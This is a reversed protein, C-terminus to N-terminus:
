KGGDSVEKKVKINEKIREAVKDRKVLINAVKGSVSKVDGVKFSGVDANEGNSIFKIKEM